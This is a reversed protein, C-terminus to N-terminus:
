MNYTKGHGKMEDLASGQTTLWVTQAETVSSDWQSGIGKEASSTDLRIWFDRIGPSYSLATNQVLLSCDKVSCYSVSWNIIFFLIKESILFSWMTGHNLCGFGPKNGTMHCLAWIWLFRMIIFRIIDMYLWTKIDIFWSRVRYSTVLYSSMRQQWSSCVDCFCCCCVVVSLLYNYNQHRTHNQDEFSYKMYLLTIQFTLLIIRLNNQGYLPGATFSLEATEECVPLLPFLCNVYCVTYVANFVAM